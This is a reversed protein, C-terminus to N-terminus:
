MNQKENATNSSNNKATKKAIKEGNKVNKRPKNQAAKKTKHSV